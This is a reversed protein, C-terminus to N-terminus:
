RLVNRYLGRFASSAMVRADVAGGRDATDHRVNQFTAPSAEEFRDRHAVTVRVAGRATTSALM